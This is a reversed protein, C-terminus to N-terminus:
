DLSMGFRFSGEGEGFDGGFCQSDLLSFSKGAPFAAVLAELIPNMLLRQWILFNKDKALEMGIM